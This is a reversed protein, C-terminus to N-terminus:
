PDRDYYMTFWDDELDKFSVVLGYLEYAYIPEISYTKNLFKKEFSEQTIKEQYPQNYLLPNIQDKDPLDEKEFFSVVFVISFFILM